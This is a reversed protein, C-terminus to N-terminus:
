FHMRLGAVVIQRNYEFEKINSDNITGLYELSALLYPTIPREFRIVIQHQNDYRGTRFGTRSNPHEYDELLLTYSVTSDFWDLVAARLELEIQNTQYAFDTGDSNLPDNDSWQYGFVFARDAAGLLFFQRFGFGNNVADRYNKFPSRLYDRGRFRYYVQTAAADGTYFTVWPVVFGEQFFSRYDRGYYNYIASIGVQYWRDARTQMDARVRHSSIDFDTETFNVSQYLEYSVNGEFMDTDLVRYSAGLDIAAFGDDQTGYDRSAKISGSDPALSVNSDYGFGLGGWVSWPRGDDDRRVIKSGGSTLYESIAQSYETDPWADQTQRLLDRAPSTEGTRLLSLAEYYNAAPRLRPDKAARSLYERAAPDDGRRFKAVGLFLAAAFRTAPIEYARKLWQEASEYEGADLYLIGLDLVAPQLDPRIQLSREIDAIAEQNRDLRAAALGRYYLALADDPDAQIAGTFYGHAEEWQQSQFSVLGKAYLQQSRTNALASTPIIIAAAVVLAAFIQTRTRGVKGREEASRERVM